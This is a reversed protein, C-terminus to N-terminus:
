AGAKRTYGYDGMVVAEGEGARIRSAATEYWPEGVGRKEQAARSSKSVEILQSIHIDGFSWDDLWLITRIKKVASVVIGMRAGHEWKVFTGNEFEM